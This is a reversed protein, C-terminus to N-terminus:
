RPFDIVKAKRGIFACTVVGTTGQRNKAIILDIEGARISEPEYYDPRSLLIVLSAAAEITGSERLDAMTPTKDQRLEVQRNLQAAAPSFASACSNRMTTIAAACNFRCTSNRCSLVGVM